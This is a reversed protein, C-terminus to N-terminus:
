FMSALGEACTKELHEITRALFSLTFIVNLSVDKLNRYCYRAMDAENPDIGTKSPMVRLNRAETLRKTMQVSNKKLEDIRSFNVLIETISAKTFVVFEGKFVPKLYNAPNSGFLPVEYVVADDGMSAMFKLTTGHAITTLYTKKFEDTISMLSQANNTFGAGKGADIDILAKFSADFLKECYVLYLFLTSINAQYADPSSTHKISDDSNFEVTDSMRKVLAEVREIANKDLKEAASSGGSSTSSGFIYKFIAIIKDFIAKIMKCFADWAKKINDGISELALRAARNASQQTHFSSEMAFTVKNKRDYNCISAETAIQAFLAERETFPTSSDVAAQVSARVKNLQENSSYLEDTTESLELLDRDMTGTM